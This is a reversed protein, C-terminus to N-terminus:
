LSTPFITKLVVHANVLLVILLGINRNFSRRKIGKLLLLPLRAQGPQVWICLITLVNLSVTFWYYIRNLQLTIEESGFLCPLFLCSGILVTLIIKPLTFFSWFYNQHCEEYEQAVSEEKAAVISNFGSKGFKKYIIDLTSQFIDAPNNKLEEEIETAFHDVLEMQLDYYPVGKEQCFKRLTEIQEATLM